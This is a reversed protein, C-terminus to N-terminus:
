VQFATWAGNIYITYTTNSTRTHIHKYKHNIPRFQVLLQSISRNIFLKMLMCQKVIDINRPIRSDEQIYRVVYISGDRAIHCVSCVTHVFASITVVNVVNRSPLGSSPPAHQKVVGCLSNVLLCLRYKTYRSPSSIIEPVSRRCASHNALQHFLDDM